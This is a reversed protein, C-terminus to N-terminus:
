QVQKVQPIKWTGDLISPPKEKPWYMRLMLVFPGSPAPLWNAEKDKGPSDHQMFLDVSGDPNTVFTNRQSLTYRNLANPVFFYSADYMTLSWFGNVPPMEGKNFHMVYRHEGSYKTVADPGKSTPYIADEPRNAGLGIWTIMARQRYDTGYLGAKTSFEWGKESRTDGAAVSKKFWGIIREQASKVASALGQAVAPDLKSDDFDQGPVIGITALKAVMPADGAAPPNAKLLHAFLTFYSKADMANVQDRVATKMDLSPDVVGAPSTYPKGYSSLPVVTVQDQFAHVQKYDEPTGTCYIRGLVWVISTPSKYQKVGSPLTGSWGPATIAYKQPGTGTTRTGPDEFVDTWGDLMPFLYYRGKMEPISLIWPEKSVDLWVTTYLTDANPATVGHYDVPPYTRVRLLQGMPAATATPEAVNTMFRRTMEMTVLPYAYIYAEVATQRAEMEKSPVGTAKRHQTGAQGHHSEQGVVASSSLLAVVFLAVTAAALVHARHAIPTVGRTLSRM